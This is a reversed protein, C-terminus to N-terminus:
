AGGDAVGAVSLFVDRAVGEDGTHIVEAACGVDDVDEAAGVVCPGVGGDAFVLVFCPGLLVEVRETWGHGVHEVVHGETVEVCLDDEDEVGLQLVFDVLRDALYAFMIFHFEDFQVVDVLFASVGGNGAHFGDGVM